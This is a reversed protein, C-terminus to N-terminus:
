RIRRPCYNEHCPINEGRENVLACMDKGSFQDKERYPCYLNEVVVNWYEM